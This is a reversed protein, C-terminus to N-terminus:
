PSEPEPRTSRPVRPRARRRRAFVWSRLAVYRTITATTSAAILVALELARPPDADLGHLVALAGSTLALTLVFVVRASRTSACATGDRGRVGFTFRRNAATNAVATLASRRPTPRAPASRAACSCSSCRTPSRARWASAM